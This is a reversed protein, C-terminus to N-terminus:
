IPCPLRRSHLHPSTLKDFTRHTGRRSEWSLGGGGEEQLRTLDDDASPEQMAIFTMHGLKDDPVPMIWERPCWEQNM